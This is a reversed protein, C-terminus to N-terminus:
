LHLQNELLYVKQKLIKDYKNILQVNYWSFYSIELKVIIIFLVSNNKVKGFWRLRLYIGFILICNITIYTRKVCAYYNITFVVSMNNSVAVFIQMIAKEYMIVM